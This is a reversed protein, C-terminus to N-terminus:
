PPSAADSFIAIDVNAPVFYTVGSPVQGVLTYPGPWQCSPNETSRHQQARQVQSYKRLAAMTKAMIAWRRWANKKGAYGM